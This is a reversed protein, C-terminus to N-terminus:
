RVASSGARPWSILFVLGVSIIWFSTLLWYLWVVMTAAMVEVTLVGGYGLSAMM